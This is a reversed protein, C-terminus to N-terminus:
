ARGFIVELAHFAANKEAVKKSPGSGIGLLETEYYLAVKYIRDHLEGEETILRYELQKESFMAGICCEPNTKKLEKELQEHFPDYCRLVMKRTKKYNSDLFIAGVCAELASGQIFDRQQPNLITKSRIYQNISFKRGIFALFAESTLSTLCISLGEDGRDPYRRYLEESIISSILSTGLFKLRKYHAQLTEENCWSPHTLAWELLTGNRFKYGINKQFTRLDKRDM